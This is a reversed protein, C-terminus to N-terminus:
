TQQASHPLNLVQPRNDIPRASSWPFDEPSAALGANVPNSEIYAVIRGFEREDRVLRDYSEDQWFPQGTVGLIRNGELGTFRKLSQMLKSVHVRPAILFHVHNPMVVYSHLHYHQLTQEHYHLAQVVIQAVEPRRLHSSGNPVAYLLRDMAVFARGHSTAAPFVRGPPLSGHLRWTLFIPHGVSYLHPLRRAHFTTVDFLAHKLCSNEPPPAKPRNVIPRLNIVQGM